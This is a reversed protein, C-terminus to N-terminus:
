HRVLIKGLIGKEETRTNEAVVVGSGFAIHPRIRGVYNAQINCQVMGANYKSRELILTNEYPDSMPPKYKLMYLFEIMKEVAFEFGMEQFSVKASSSIEGLVENLLELLEAPSKEDFAVMTLNKNFPPENLKTVISQIIRHSQSPDM